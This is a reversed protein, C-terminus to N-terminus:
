IAITNQSANTTTTNDDSVTNNEDSSCGLSRQIDNFSKGKTEPVFRWVFITCSAAFAAFVFFTQGVGITDTVNSFFKTVIFAILWSTSGSLSSAIAKVDTTFIEGVLVQIM